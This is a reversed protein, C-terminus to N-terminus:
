HRGRPVLARRVAAMPLVMRRPQSPLAVFGLKEHFRQARDDLADLIVLRVGVLEAVQVCRTLADQMLRQGLGRGHCARDVGFMSLYIAPIAGHRPIRRLDLNTVASVDVHHAALAHFGLVAPDDGAVAVHLRSFDDTDQRPATIHLFNDISAVGCSFATRDHRQRDFREIRITSLWARHVKM